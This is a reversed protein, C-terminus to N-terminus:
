LQLRRYHMQYNGFFAACECRRFSRFLVRLKQERFERRGAAEVVVRVKLQLVQALVQLPGQVRLHVPADAEPRVFPLALKQVNNIRALGREDAAGGGAALGEDAVVRHVLGQAGVVSVHHHEHRGDLGQDVLHTASQRFLLARNDSIPLQSIPL